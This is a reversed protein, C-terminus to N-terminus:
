LNDKLQQLFLKLKELSETLAYKEAAYKENKLYEKAGDITFKRVRLLDHILYLTKVDEPRYYRDGKRNKRPKIIKFENTWYRILSTQEGFMRAVDGIPYYSKEFLEADPPLVVEKNAQEKLARRGGGSKKKVLEEVSAPPTKVVKTHDVAPKIEEPPDFSFDGFDIAIQKAM